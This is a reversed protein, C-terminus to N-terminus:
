LCAGQPANTGNYLPVPRWGLRALALGEAAGDADPIDLIVACDPLIKNLYFVQPILLDFVACPLRNKDAAVFPAPRAWSAWGVGAPAM